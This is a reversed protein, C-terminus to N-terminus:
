TASLCKHDHDGGPLHQVVPQLQERMKLNSGEVYLAPFVWQQKGAEASHRIMHYM